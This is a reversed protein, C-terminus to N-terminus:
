ICNTDITIQSLSYSSRGIGVGIISIKDDRAKRGEPITNYHDINSRGDTMLICVNEVGSRDGKIDTFIEDRMRRLAGATNTSGYIYTADRTANLIEEKTNYDDLGYELKTNSSFSMFAVRYNGNDIDLSRIIEMAATKLREFNHHGVSGSTDVVFAVDARGTCESIFLSSRLVNFRMKVSFIPM